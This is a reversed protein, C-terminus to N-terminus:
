VTGTINVNHSVKIATAACFALILNDAGYIDPTLNNVRLSGNSEIGM